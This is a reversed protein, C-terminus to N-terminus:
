RFDTTQVKVDLKDIIESLRELQELFESLFEEADKGGIRGDNKNDHLVSLFAATDVDFQENLQCLVEERTGPPTKGNKLRLINRFVPMLARFSQKILGELRKRTLAQELYAQRITLLKGKLQYECERRVDETKVEVNALVDEGLLVLRSEKMGIFEMPFTDLSMKIYSPTLFLPVTIKKKLAKKLTGLALKLKGLSTDKLVVAINIDSGKPSYDPGTVSGYAFISVIEKGYIEVLDEIVTKLGKQVNEPLKEINKIDM